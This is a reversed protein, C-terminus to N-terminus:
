ASGGQAVGGRTFSKFTGATILDMCNKFVDDVSSASDDIKIRLIDDLSPVEVGLRTKFAETFRFTNYATPTKDLEITQGFVDPDIIAPDIPSTEDDQAAEETVPDILGHHFSPDLKTVDLVNIIVPTGPAMIIQEVLKEVDQGKTDCNIGTELAYIVADLMSLLMKLFKSEALLGIKQDFISFHKDGYVTLKAVLDKVYERLKELADFLANFLIEIPFCILIGALEPNTIIKNIRALAEDFLQNILSIIEYYLLTKADIYLQKYLDALLKGFNFNVGKALIELLGRFSKLTALDLTGTFNAFCCILRKVWPNFAMMQAWKDVMYNYQGNSFSLYDYLNIDIDVWKSAEEPPMKAYNLQYSTTFEHTLGTISDEYIGERHSAVAENPTYQYGVKVAHARFRPSYIPAVNLQQQMDYSSLRLDMFAHWEAYGEEYLHTNLWNACYERILEFDGQSFKVYAIRLMETSDQFAGNNYMDTLTMGDVSGGNALIEAQDVISDIDIGPFGQGISDKLTKKTDDKFFGNILAFTALGILIQALMVPIETGFPMKGVNMEARRKAQWVDLQKSLIYQLSFAGAYLLLKALLNMKNEKPDKGAVNYFSGESFVQHGIKNPDIDFLTPESYLLMNNSIINADTQDDGTMKNMLDISIARSDLLGKELCLKFLGWNIRSGDHSNEKDRRQVAQRVESAELYVPIYSKTSNSSEILKLLTDTKAKVQAIRTFIEDAKSGTDKETSPAAHLPAKLSAFSPSTGDNQRIQNVSGDDAKVPVINPDFKRAPKPKLNPQKNIM